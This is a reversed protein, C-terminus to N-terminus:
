CSKNEVQEVVHRFLQFRLPLFDHFRHHSLFLSPPLPPPPFFPFPKPNRMDQCHWHLLVCRSKSTVDYKPVTEFTVKKRFNFHEYTQINEADQVSPFFFQFFKCRQGGHQNAAFSPPSAHALFSDSAVCYRYLAVNNKYQVRAKYSFVSLDNM